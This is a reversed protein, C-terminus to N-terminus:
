EDGRRCWRGRREPPPLFWQVIVFLIDPPTLAAVVTADAAVSNSTRHPHATATHSFFLSPCRGDVLRM